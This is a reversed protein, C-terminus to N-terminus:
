GNAMSTTVWRGHIYSTSMADEMEAMIEDFPESSCAKKVASQPQTEVLAIPFIFSSLEMLHDRRKAALVKVNQNVKLKQQDLGALHQKVYMEIKNVKSEFQPLRLTRKANEARLKDAEKRTKNRSENKEKTIINLCRIRQKTLKIQESLLTERSVKENQFLATM